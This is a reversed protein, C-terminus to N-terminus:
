EKIPRNSEYLYIVVTLVLVLINLIFTSANAAMPLIGVNAIVGCILILLMGGLMGILSMISQKILQTEEQWDYYAMRNGIFIGAVATFLAFSLPTVIM